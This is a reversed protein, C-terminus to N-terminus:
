DEDEDSIDIMPDAQDPGQSTAGRHRAQEQYDRDNWVEVQNNGMDSIQSGQNM